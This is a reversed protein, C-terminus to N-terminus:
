RLEEDEERMLVGIDAILQQVSATNLGNYVGRIHRDGDVLVMNETHLFDDDSRNIGLDEEVFYIQRGLHYILSREGTLLHWRPSTVGKRAAFSKLVDVTDDDPTVTHSLLLLDAGPPFAADIVAMNKTLTPCIGVCTTFFFDVVTVQGDMDAETVSDGRQDTLAFAVVRHFDAPLADEELWRPTFEASDFFPLTATTSVDAADGCGLLLMPILLRELRM